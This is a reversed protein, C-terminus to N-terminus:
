CLTALTRHPIVAQLLRSHACPLTCAHAHLHHQLNMSQISYTCSSYATLAHCTHQLNMLQPFALAHVRRCASALLPHPGEVMGAVAHMFTLSWSAAVIIFMFTPICCLQHIEGYTHEFFKSPCILLMSCLPLNPHTTPSTPFSIHLSTSFIQSVSM